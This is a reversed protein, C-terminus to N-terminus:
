KLRSIRSVSTIGGNIEVGRKLTNKEVDYKAIFWRANDTKLVVYMDNSNESYTEMTKQVAGLGFSNLDKVVKKNRVDIVFSGMFALGNKLYTHHDPGAYGGNSLAINGIEKLDFAYTPDIETAGKKIRLLGYEGKNNITSFYYDGNDDTFSSSSAYWAGSVHGLRADKLLKVNALSPYDAVLMYATDIKTAWDYYYGIFVKNDRISFSSPTLPMDENKVEKGDTDYLKYKPMPFKIPNKSKVSMSATTDVMFLKNELVNDTKNYSTQWSIFNLGNENFLTKMMGLEWSGAEAVVNGVERYKGTQIRQKSIINGDMTFYFNGKSYASYITAWFLDADSVIGSKVPSLLTDKELNDVTLTYYSETANANGVTVFIAYDKIEPAAVPDPTDKCAQLLPLGCIAALMLRSTGKTLITKM